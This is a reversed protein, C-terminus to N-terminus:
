SQSFWPIIISIDLSGNDSLYPFNVVLNSIPHIWTKESKKAATSLYLSIRRPKPSLGILALVVGVSSILLSMVAVLLSTM